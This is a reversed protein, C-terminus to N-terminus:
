ARYMGRALERQQWVKCGRANTASEHMVTAWSRTAAKDGAGKLHSQYRSHATRVSQYEKRAVASLDKKETLIGEVTRIETLLLKYKVGSAVADLGIFFTDWAAFMTSEAGCYARCALRIVNNETVPAVPVVVAIAKTAMTYGRSFACRTIGVRLLIIPCAPSMTLNQVATVAYGPPRAGWGYGVGRSPM